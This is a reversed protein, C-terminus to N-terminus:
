KKFMKGFLARAERGIHEISKSLETVDADRVLHSHTLVADDGSFAFAGYTLELNAELLKEIDKVDSRPGVVSWITVVADGERDRAPTAYVVQQRGDMCPVTIEWNGSGSQALPWNKERALIRLIGEFRGISDTIEM